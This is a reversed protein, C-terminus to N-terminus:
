TSINIKPTQLVYIFTFVNSPSRAAIEDGHNGLDMFSLAFSRQIM